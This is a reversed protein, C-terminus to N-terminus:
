VIIVDVVDICRQKAGQHARDSWALRPSISDCFVDARADDDSSDMTVIDAIEFHNEFPRRYILVVVACM